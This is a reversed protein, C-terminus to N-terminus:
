GVSLKMGLQDLDRSRERLVAAATEFADDGLAEFDKLVIGVVEQRQGPTLSNLAKKNLAVAGHYEIFEESYAQLLERQLSKELVTLASSPICLTAPKKSKRWIVDVISFTLLGLIMMAATVGFFLSAQQNIGDDHEFIFGQCLLLVLSVLQWRILNLM